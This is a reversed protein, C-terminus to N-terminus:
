DECYTFNLRMIKNDLLKKAKDELSIEPKCSIKVFKHFFKHRDIIYWGDATGHILMFRASKFNSAYKSVNAAQFFLFFFQSGKPREERLM